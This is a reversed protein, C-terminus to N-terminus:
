LRDEREWRYIADQLLGIRDSSPSYQREYEILREVLGKDGRAKQLLKQYLRKEKGYRTNPYVKRMYYAVGVTLIVVAILYLSFLSYAALYASIIFVTLVAMLCKLRSKSTSSSTEDDSKYPLLHTYTAENSWGTDKDSGCEPCACANIPVDAGCHPCSFYDSM